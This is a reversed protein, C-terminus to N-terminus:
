RSFQNYLCRCLDRTNQFKPTWWISFFLYALRTFKEYLM